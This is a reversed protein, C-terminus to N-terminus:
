LASVIAVADLSIALPLISKDARVSICALESSSVAAEISSNVEVTVCFAPLATCAFSSACDAEATARWPPATTACTIPVMSVMLAEDRLITSMMPTM